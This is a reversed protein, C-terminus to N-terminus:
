GGSPEASSAWQREEIVVQRLHCVDRPPLPEASSAWQREEIVVQRLHCVDRPPLPACLPIAADESV